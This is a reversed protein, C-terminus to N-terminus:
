RAMPRYGSNQVVVQVKKAPADLTTQETYNTGDALTAFEVTLAVADDPTDLYSRVTVAVLRNSAMDLDLAMQDGPKIYNTLELRLRGAQLPRAAVNGAKKAKDIDEPNPPVYHHVLSVAAQMDEQLAETKNEVVAQKIRGGRRRGTDQPPPAAEGVPLKQIKGDAGYYCRLQKRSKEEGKLSIISTEIWEYRQLQKQSEQLSQKLAAIREEPAPGAQTLASDAGSALAAGLAVTLTLFVNMM